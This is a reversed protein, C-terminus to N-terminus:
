KSHGLGSYNLSRSVKLMHVGLSGAPKYKEQQWM